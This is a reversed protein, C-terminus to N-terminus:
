PRVEVSSVEDVCLMRQRAHVSRAAFYKCRRASKASACRQLANQALVTRNLKDAM